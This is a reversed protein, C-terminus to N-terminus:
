TQSSAEDPESPEIRRSARRLADEFGDETLGEVGEIAMDPTPSQGKQLEKVRRDRLEVFAEQNIVELIKKVPIVIAIGMNVAEQRFSDGAVDDGDLVEADWHGHMLGLWHFGTGSTLTNRRGQLIRSLGPFVFVPSGSLGGISRAEILYAEIAGLENTHVPEEPMLAINGTRVIPLNRERGYHNVFLGTLFVDDGVGIELQSITEDTIAMAIPITRFDFTPRPLLLPIVSVDVSPETPHSKWDAVHTEVFGSDGVTKNVRILAKGDISQRQIGVIVHKATVVYGFTYGVDEAGVTVFFATGALRIGDATNFCLFAVSKRIEDPVQM